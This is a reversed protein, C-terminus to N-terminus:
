GECAKTTMIRYLETDEPFRDSFPILTGQIRYLGSGVEPNEIHRRQDASMRYLEALPEPDEINFMAVFPSNYMARRAEEHLLVTEPHQTIGNAVGRFKRSRAWLDLFFEASSANQLHTQWEDFYMWTERGAAYNELLREWMMDTIIHLAKPRFVKGTDRLGVGVLRSSMMDVTSASGFQGMTGTTYAELATALAAAEAEPQSRLCSLLNGMNPVYRVDQTLTFQAYITQTVRDIISRIISLEHAPAPYVQECLGMLFQSKRAVPDGEALSAVSIDCPNIYDTSGPKVELYRGGFAEVFPVYENDPDIIFVQANPRRMLVQAIERKVAMSKGSGTSGLWMAHPAPLSFRNYLIFRGSPSLGGYLGDKHQVELSAWPQFMAATATTFTRLADIHNKGLPLTSNLGELQQYELTALKYTLKSAKDKVLRTAEKLREEDSAYVYVLFSGRFMRQNRQKLDARLEEADAIQDKLELPLMEDPDYGENKSKRRLSHREQDMSIYQSNVLDLAKDQPVPALHMTIVMDTPVSAIDFIVRDSLDAPYGDLKGCTTIALTRGYTEGYRIIDNKAKPCELSMPSIADKSRLHSAAASQYSFFLEEDPWFVRNLLALREYGDIHVAYVGIGRLVSIAEKEIQALLEAAQAHSRERVTFTFYHEIIRDSSGCDAKSRLMQNFEERLRGLGDDVAPVPLFVDAQEEPKLQRNFITLQVAATDDIYNLLECFREFVIEQDRRSMNHYNLDDFRITSSYLGAQVKCIGDDFLAEYAIKDQVSSPAKAAGKRRKQERQRLRERRRAEKLAQRAQKASLAQAKNTSPAHTVASKALSHLVVM